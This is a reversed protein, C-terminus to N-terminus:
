NWFKKDVSRYSIAEAIHMENIDISADLDAITRAVKLIRSYGRASLGMSSYANKILQEASKTLTCYKEIKDGSLEANSFFTEDKYRKIQIERAAVVRKKIEASSEGGSVKLDAYSIESAEVSIDIRDLLPGSVKSLYRKISAESCRCRGGKDGYYGCKCPNMAAVVMSKCPYTVSAAVRTLNVKGDEMPQRMVETADKKFEPLEDLFLVGNHALSLEGPKPIAGGGVLGITSITHHPSRFPRKTVLSGNEKLLGAVSYIKTTELAEEITMDPLITPLRKALMSKGSGPTGILLCNHGGAATIELARKAASQGKVESFDTEFELSQSFVKEIDVEFKEIECEGSLFSICEFLNDVPYIEAGKSLAAEEANAKPVIFKTFGKEVASIIIPLVGAVGRVQGSLSLEGLLVFDNKQSTFQETAGLISVAIPLDFLSGEKKIGSPALNVTYRKAPFQFNCNKIAARVRDKAEKVSADPLGVVEFAPLGMSADAEVEIMNGELGTLACSKVKYIM